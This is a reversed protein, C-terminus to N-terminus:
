LDTSDDSYRTVVTAVARAPITINTADQQSKELSAESSTTYVDVGKAFGLNAGTEVLKFKPNEAALDRLQRKARGTPLPM